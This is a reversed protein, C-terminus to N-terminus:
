AKFRAWARRWRERMRAYATVPEDIVTIAPQLVDGEADLAFRVKGKSTAEFSLSGREVRIRRSWGPGIGPGVIEFPSRLIATTKKL